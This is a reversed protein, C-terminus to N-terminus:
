AVEEEERQLPRQHQLHTLHRQVQKTPVAWAKWLAKWCTILTARLCRKVNEVEQAWVKPKRRADQYWVLQVERRQINPKRSRGCSQWIWTLWHIHHRPHVHRHRRHHCLHPPPRPRQVIPGPPVPLWCPRLFIRPPFRARSRPIERPSPIEWRKMWNEELYKRANKVQQQTFLSVQSPIWMDSGAGFTRSFCAKKFTRTKMNQNTKMCATSISLRWPSWDCLKRLKLNRGSEKIIAGCIQGCAINEASIRTWVGKAQREREQCPLKQNNWAIHCVTLYFSNQMTTKPSNKNEFRSWWFSFFLM